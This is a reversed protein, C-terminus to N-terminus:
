CSASDCTANATDTSDSVDDACTGALRDRQGEKNPDFNLGPPSSAAWSMPDTGDAALGTASAADATRQMSVLAETPTVAVVDGPAEGVGTRGSQGKNVPVWRGHAGVTGVRDQVNNAAVSMDPLTSGAPYFILKHTEM